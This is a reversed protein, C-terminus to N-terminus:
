PAFTFELTKAEGDAVTVNATQTGLKEHWAEVVYTGSPLAKLTFQGADSTVAYFPHPVVGIYGSMWPHVDCKFRLMVEPQALVKKSEMGRAPQGVNFAPNNEGLAHINHLTDDSNRILLTQGTQMGQVRPRYLCGSQDLVVPEKPAPYSGNIGAKIYVFVNRLAGDANVLLEENAVTGGHTSECFPDAAMKLPNLKPAVGRFTVKGVITATGAVTVVPPAVPAPPASESPKGCGLGLCVALVVVFRM